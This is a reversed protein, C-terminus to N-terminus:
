LCKTRYIRSRNINLCNIACIFGIRDNLNNSLLFTLPTPIDKTLPVKTIFNKIRLTTRINNGEMNAIGLFTPGKACIKIVNSEMNAIGLFTPSKTCIKIFNSVQLSLKKGSIDKNNKLNILNYSVECLAFARKLAAVHLKQVKLDKSRGQANMQEQWIEKNCKKVLLFLEPNKM